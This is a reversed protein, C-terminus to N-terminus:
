AVGGEVEETIFLWGVLGKEENWISLCNRLETLKQSWGDHEPQYKFETWAELTLKVTAVVGECRVPIFTYLKTSPQAKVVRSQRAASGQVSVAQANAKSTVTNQM